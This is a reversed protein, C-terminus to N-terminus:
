WRVMQHMKRDETSLFGDNCLQCKFALKKKLEKEKHFNEYHSRAANKKSFQKKCLKCCFTEIQKLNESHNKNFHDTDHSPDNLKYRCISCYSMKTDPHMAAFHVRVETMSKYTFQCELCKYLIRDTSSEPDRHELKLHNKFNDKTVHYSDDLPCVLSLNFTKNDEDIHKENKLIDVHCTNCTDEVNLLRFGHSETLHEYLRCSVDFTKKCFDCSILSTTLEDTDFIQHKLELHSDYGICYVKSADFDTEIFDKISGISDTQIVTFNKLCEEDTKMKKDNLIVDIIPNKGLNQIIAAINIEHHGRYHEIFSFQRIDQTIDLDCFNCLVQKKRRSSEVRYLKTTAKSLAKEYTMLNVSHKDRLHNKFNGSSNVINCLYCEVIDHLNHLHDSIERPKLYTERCGFRCSDPLHDVDLHEALKKKDEFLQNCDKLNCAVFGQCFVEHIEKTTTEPSVPNDCVSCTDRGGEELDSDNLQSGDIRIEPIKSIYQKM